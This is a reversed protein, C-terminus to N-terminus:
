GNGSGGRRTQLGPLKASRALIGQLPPRELSALMAGHISNLDSPLSGNVILPVSKAITTIRDPILGAISTVDKGVLPSATM